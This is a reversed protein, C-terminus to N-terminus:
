RWSCRQNEINCGMGPLTTHGITRWASVKESNELIAKISGNLGGNNKASILRSGQWPADSDENQIGCVVARLSTYNEERSLVVVIM